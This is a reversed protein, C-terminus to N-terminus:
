FFIFRFIRALDKASKETNISANYSWTDEDTLGSDSLRQISFTTGNVIVEYPIPGACLQLNIFNKHKWM